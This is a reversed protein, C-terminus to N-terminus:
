QSDTNDEGFFEHYTNMREQVDFLQKTGVKKIIIINGKAIIKDSMPTIEITEDIIQANENMIDKKERELRSHILNTAEEVTYKKEITMYEEFTNHIISIPLYFNDFLSVDEKVYISDYNEYKISPKILNIEKGFLVLSHDKKTKETYVKDIYKFNLTDEYDYITKIYIDADSHTFEVDLLQELEKIELTGSVLVDGKSVVDGKVVQPSGTRTVISVIVGNKDSVIDCPKGYAEIEIPVEGEEVFIILKTGKIECSVWNFNIFQKLLAKKLGTCDVDKKWMGSCYAHTTLFKTIQEDTIRTNGQIDIKWIFLSMFFVLAFCIIIGVLFAKRKRFRFLNFPMGIKKVLKVRCGTKKVLPRIMKFGKVSMCLSYGRSVSELNWIYIGKNACLNIFREPSFGSVHIMVYGKTYKWLGLLM